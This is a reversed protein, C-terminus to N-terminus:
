KLDRQIHYQQEREYERAENGRPLDDRSADSPERDEDAVHRYAYPPVTAGSAKLADLDRRITRTSVGFRRAWSELFVMEISTWRAVIIRLEARRASPTM